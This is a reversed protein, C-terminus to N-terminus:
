TPECMVSAYVYVFVDCLCVSSCSACWVGGHVRACFVCARVEVACVAGARQLVQRGVWLKPAGPAGSGRGRGPPRGASVWVSSGSLPSLDLDELEWFVTIGARDSIM